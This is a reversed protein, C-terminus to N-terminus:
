GRVLRARMADPDEPRFCVLMGDMLTGTDELITVVGGSVNVVIGPESLPQGDGRGVLRGRLGAFPHLAPPTKAVALAEGIAKGLTKALMMSPSGLGPVDNFVAGVISVGLAKAFESVDGSKIEM